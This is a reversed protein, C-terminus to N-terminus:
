YVSELDREFDASRKEILRRLAALAARDDLERVEASGWGLHQTLIDRAEAPFVRDCNFAFSAFRSNSRSAWYSNIFRKPAVGHLGHRHLVKKVLADLHGLQALDNLRNFYRIWGRAEGNIVCGGIAINLDWKLRNISSESRDVSKAYKAVIQAIRSEIKLVGRRAVRVRSGSIEYGLYEFPEDASGSLTKGLTPLEHVELGLRELRFRLDQYKRESDECLVLIDDVYRFYRCGLSAMRDFDELYVEALTSSISIGLPIGDPSSSLGGSRTGYPVTRNRIARDILSLLKKSRIKKSLGAYLMEHRVSGFYDVIDIKLFRGYEETMVDDIVRRMKHQSPEPGSVGYVDKLVSQLCFLALRDKITPISFVRPAREIGRSMM